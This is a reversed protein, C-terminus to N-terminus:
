SDKWLICMMSVSGMVIRDALVHAHADKAAGLAYLLPLYHEDAALKAAQHEIKILADHEQKILGQKVFEQFDIAWQHSAPYMKGLNHIILIGHKRLQQLERGINFQKERSLSADISLQLVPVDAEPYMHVLVSWTGHDLGWEETLQVDVSKVTEKVLQAIEPSGPAPYQMQNLKEPFGYFDHITEPRQMATIFTGETVWHASVALIAKPRPVQTALEEWAKTFENREIANMPSGHGIFLVPMM